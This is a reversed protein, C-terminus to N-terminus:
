VYSGRTPEYSAIVGQIWPPIPQDRYTKSVGGVGESSAGGTRALAYWYAALDEVANSLDDPLDQPATTFTVRLLPLRQRRWRTWAPGDEAPPWGTTGSAPPIMFRGKEADILSFDVESWSLTKAPVATEAKTIVSVPRLSLQYIRGVQVDEFLDIRGTDPSGDVDLKTLNLVRLRAANFADKVRADHATNSEPIDLKHKVNAVSAM